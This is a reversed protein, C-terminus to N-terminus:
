AVEEITIELRGLFSLVRPWSEIGGNFLKIHTADAVTQGLTPDMPIWGGAFVEPWAHYYFAEHDASWVLGIAIRTPVGAARALATFLVTHENCDGERTALVDLASPLSLVPTKALKAYVWEELRVARSWPDHVDGVLAAAQRRILPHEAQLLPEAALYPGLAAALLSGSAPPDDLDPSPPPAIVYTSSDVRVQMDDEPLAPPQPGGLRLRMRRAGRFPEAGAPRIATTALLDEANAAERLAARGQQESIVQLVLGLPAEARLVNGRADVWARAAIGGAELEVIRSPRAEGGVMVRSTEGGRLRVKGASLTLPDLSVVTREEGPALEPLRLTSGLGNGIVLDRGVPLRLPLSEGGTELTAILEGDELHGDLWLAHGGSRVGLELEMTAGRLPQWVRATVDLDTPKGLLRLRVDTTLDLLMGRRGGRNEPRVVWHIVGVQEGSALFVGLWSEGPSPPAAGSWSRAPSLERLALAGMTLAWFAVILIGTALRARRGGPWPQLPARNRM